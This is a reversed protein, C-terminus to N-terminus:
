RRVPSSWAEMRLTSFPWVANRKWWRRLAPLSSNWARCTGTAIIAGSFGRGSNRVIAGPLTASARTIRYGLRSALAKRGEYEFDELKELYGREILFKPDREVVKMRCWIEPVLMSVDHDVKYHPGVYGAVSTFGEGTLIAGLVASNM